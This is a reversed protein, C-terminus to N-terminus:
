AVMLFHLTIPDFYPWGIIELYDVILVDLFQDFLSVLMTFVVGFFLTIVFHIFFTWKLGKSIETAM